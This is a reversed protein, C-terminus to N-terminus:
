EAARDLASRALSAIMRARLADETEVIGKAALDSSVRAILVDDKAGDVAASVLEQAYAQTSAEDFGMRAAAYGGIAKLATCHALFRVEGEHAFAWEAAREREELLRGM